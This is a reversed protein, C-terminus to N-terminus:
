FLCRYTCLHTSHRLSPRALLCLPRFARDAHSWTLQCTVGVIPQERYHSRMFWGSVPRTDLHSAFNGISIRALCGSSARVLGYALDLYLTDGVRPDGNVSQKRRRENKKPWWDRRRNSVGTGLMHGSYIGLATCAMETSCAVTKQIARRSNKQPSACSVRLRRRSTQLEISLMGPPGTSSSQISTHAPAM